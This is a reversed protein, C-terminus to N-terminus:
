IKHCVSGHLSQTVLLDSIKDLPWSIYLPPLYGMEKCEKRKLENKVDYIHFADHTDLSGELGGTPGRGLMWIM